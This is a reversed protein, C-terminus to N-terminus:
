SMTLRMSFAFSSAFCVTSSLLLGTDILKTARIMPVEHTVALPINSSSTISPPICFISVLEPLRNVFEVIFWLLPPMVVSM